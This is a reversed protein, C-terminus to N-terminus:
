RATSPQPGLGPGAAYLVHLRGVAPEWYEAREIELKLLVIGGDEPKEDGLWLRWSPHWLRTVEDVNRDIRARASISLFAHDRTRVCCLDVERHREIDDIKPSDDPTALWLDCDSLRERQLQMPRARLAGEDDITVLMAADFEQLMALLTPKSGRPRQWTGVGKM